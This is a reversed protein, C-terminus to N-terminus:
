TGYVKEYDDQLKQWSAKDFAANGPQNEPLAERRALDAKADVGGSGQSGGALKSGEGSIQSRMHEIFQHGKASDGLMSKAYDAVDKSMGPQNDGQATMADLFAFNDNMRKERAASQEAEPLNKAEEPVLAAKEAEVDVFPELAGMEQAAGFFELTLDQFDQVPMGKELASKSLKQFVTDESLASVHSKLQDPVKDGFDAYAEQTEPAGRDNDKQRYGKLALAMKDITEENSEGYLNDPLGDPRYAAPPDGAPPDGAPPDGAPPDGAPPDGAGGGSGNEADKLIWDWLTTKTRM